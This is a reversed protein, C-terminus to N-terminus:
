ETLQLDPVHRIFRFHEDNEDHTADDAHMLEDHKVHVRKQLSINLGVLVLYAREGARARVFGTSRALSSLSKASPMRLMVWVLQRRKTGSAINEVENGTNSTRKCNDIM